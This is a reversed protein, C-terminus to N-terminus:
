TRPRASAPITPEFEVLPMPTQRKYLTQTRLYLDRRRASGEDLPTRGVTTHAQTHDLSFLFGRCRSRVLLCFLSPSCFSVFASISIVTYLNMNQKVSFVRRSWQLPWVILATEPFSRHATNLTVCLVNIWYSFVRPQKIYFPTAFFLYKHKLINIAYSNNWTKIRCLVNIRM